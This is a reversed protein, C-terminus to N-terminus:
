GEQIGYGLSRLLVCGYVSVHACVVYMLFYLRFHRKREKEQGQGLPLTGAFNVISTDTNMHICM